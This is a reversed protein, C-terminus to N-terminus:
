SESRKKSKPSQIKSRIAAVLWRVGPVSNKHGRYLDFPVFALSANQTNVDAGVTQDTLFLSDVVLSILVHDQLIRISSACSAGQARYHTRVYADFHKLSTYTLTLLFFTFPHLFYRHWMM